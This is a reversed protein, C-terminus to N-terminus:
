MKPKTDPCEKKLPLGVHKIIHSLRAPCSIEASKGSRLNIVHSLFGRPVSASGSCFGYRGVVYDRSGSVSCQRSSNILLLLHSFM